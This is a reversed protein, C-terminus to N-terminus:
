TKGIAQLYREEIDAVMREASFYASAQQSREAVTRRWQLDVIALALAGSLASQDGIPVVRAEAHEQMEAAGGVDTMVIPLARAAGELLVYPFGEYLSSLVLLDFAAMLRAGDAYGTWTVSESLGLESSLTELSGRLPGDGVVVLHAQPHEQLVPVLARLLLDVGKQHGLRGVLGFCFHNDTLGLSQRVSPREAPQLARIGNPVVHLKSEPLGLSVAHDYEYRSVCLISHTLRALSREAREFVWRRAGTLTPDLTVFAHPTYFVPTGTLRGAVRALAGGKSSHGHVISFPGHERLYRVVRYVASLDWPGPQRRMPISVQTLNAMANLEALFEPELRGKSYAVHINWHRSSLGRCLDLVHRGTGAGANELVLLLKKDSAM